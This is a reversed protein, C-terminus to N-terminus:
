QLFPGRVVSMQTLERFFVTTGVVRVSSFYIEAVNERQTML